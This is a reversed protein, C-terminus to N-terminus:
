LGHKEMRRYLAGRSLGLESAALSVNFHHMRLAREIMQKELQDLNLNDSLVSMAAAESRQPLPFDEPRYRDGDAMIVAREAAHRLARVNGPWDHRVLIDLVHPPLERQPKDYKRAYLGLYHDLLTPIDERRERLAPLSIEITNLRFLLDQRFRKEDALAEASANTAAVVRVDIPVSKNAGVPVVERQELATLLKPQLHLPLNGIEDLFLTSRDAAKLRGMRDAEAGTFAGKVHGFLESEFLTETTAGLDVSVMPHENRRSLRHIERAVIEKGTGNEGLILVNADTPAARDILTRVRQMAESQGLLPTESSPALESARGRETRADIRSRRLAAASRITAALRENSWPKAVFDSAGAKIAEVAVSVAGHATIIVVASDPDQEMIQSLFSLGERGDTAGRQFNLDLLIADPSEDRLLPLLNAPSSLTEVREFLDRLALRAALAIDPDDDVVVALSFPPEV